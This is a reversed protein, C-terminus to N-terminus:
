DQVESMQQGNPDNGAHAQHECCRAGARSAISCARDGPRRMWQPAKRPRHHAPAVRQVVSTGSRGSECRKTRGDACSRMGIELHKPVPPPPPAHACLARM